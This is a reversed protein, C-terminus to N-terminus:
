WKKTLCNSFLPIEINGKLIEMLAKESIDKLYNSNLIQKKNEVAKGLSAIMGWAGDFDEGGYRITWKPTSWYSFSISNFVLLFHLKEKETLKSFDFPAENLWHNIHSEGFVKCFEKIKNKNIKIYESNDVVFRTTELIQNM